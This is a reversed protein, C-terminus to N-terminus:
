SGEKKWGNDIKLISEKKYIATKKLKKLFNKSNKSLIFMLLQMEEMFISM